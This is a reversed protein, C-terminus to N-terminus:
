SVVANLLLALFLISSIITLIIKITKSNPNKFYFILGIILTLISYPIITKLTQYIIIFIKGFMYFGSTFSSIIVLLIICLIAIILGMGLINKLNVLQWFLINYNSNIDKSSFSFNMNCYPCCSEENKVIKDCRPCVM